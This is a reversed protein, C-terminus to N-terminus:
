KQFNFDLIGCLSSSADKGKVELLLGILAVSQPCGMCLFGTRRWVVGGGALATTPAGAAETDFPGPLM